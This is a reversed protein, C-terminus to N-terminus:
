RVRKISKIRYNADQGGSATAAVTVAIVARTEDDIDDADVGAADEVYEDIYEIDRNFLSRLLDRVSM